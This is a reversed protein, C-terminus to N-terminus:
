SRSYQFVMRMEGLHRAGCDCPGPEISHIHETFEENNRKKHL